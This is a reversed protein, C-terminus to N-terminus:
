TGMFIIDYGDEAGKVADLAESGNEASDLSALERKKLYTLMLNLNIKNDEVVLIRAARQDSTSEREESAEESAERSTDKSRHPIVM